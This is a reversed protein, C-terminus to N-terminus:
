NLSNTVYIIFSSLVKLSNLLLLLFDTIGELSQSVLLYNIFGLSRLLRTFGSVMIIRPTLPISTCSNTSICSSASLSSFVGGEAKKRHELQGTEQKYADRLLWGQSCSVCSSPFHLGCPDGEREAKYLLASPFILYSDSLWCATVLILNELVISIRVLYM